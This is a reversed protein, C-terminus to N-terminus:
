TIAAIGVNPVHQLVETTVQGRLLTPCLRDVDAGPRPQIPSTVACPFSARVAPRGLEVGLVQQDVDLPVM